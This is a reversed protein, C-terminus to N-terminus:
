WINGSHKWSNIGEVTQWNWISYWRQLRHLYKPQFNTQRQHWHAYDIGCMELDERIGTNLRIFHHPQKVRCTADYFRRNFARASPVARSFFNLAGGISSNGKSNSAEFLEVVFSAVTKSKRNTHQCYSWSYWNCSGLFDIFNYAWM